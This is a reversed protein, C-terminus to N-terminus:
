TSIINISVEWILFTLCLCNQVEYTVLLATSPFHEKHIAIFLLHLNLIILSDFKYYEFICLVNYESNQEEWTKRESKM